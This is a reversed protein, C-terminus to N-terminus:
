GVLLNFCTMGNRTNGPIPATGLKGAVSVALELRCNQTGRVFKEPTQKVAMRWRLLDRRGGQAHSADTQLHVQIGFTLYRVQGAWQPMCQSLLKGGRLHRV